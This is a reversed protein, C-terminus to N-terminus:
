RGGTRTEILAELAERDEERLDEVPSEEDALKVLAKKAAKAALGEVEVDSALDRLREALTREGLPISVAAVGAMVALFCLFAWRIMAFM